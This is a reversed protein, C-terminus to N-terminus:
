GMALGEQPAGKKTLKEWQENYRLVSVIDEYKLTEKGYLLMTVLPDYSPPLSCLLLLSKDEEKM